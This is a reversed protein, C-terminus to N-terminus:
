ASAPKSLLSKTEEYMSEKGSLFINSSKIILSVFPDYSVTEMKGLIGNVAKELTAIQSM